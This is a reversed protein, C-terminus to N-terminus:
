WPALFKVFASKGSGFVHKDFNKTTLEVQATSATLLALMEVHSRVHALAHAVRPAFGSNHLYLQGAPRLQGVQLLTPRSTAVLRSTRFGSSALNALEPWCALEVQM